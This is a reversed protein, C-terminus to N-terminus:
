KEDKSSTLFSLLDKHDIYGGITVGAIEDDGHVNKETWEVIERDRQARIEAEATRLWEAASDFESRLNHEQETDCGCKTFRGGCYIHGYREEFKEALTKSEIKPM